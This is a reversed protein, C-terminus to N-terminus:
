RRRAARAQREINRCLDIRRSTRAAPLVGDCLNRVKVNGTVANAIAFGLVQGDLEM